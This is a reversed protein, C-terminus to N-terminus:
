TLKARVMAYMEHNHVEINKALVAGATCYGLRM